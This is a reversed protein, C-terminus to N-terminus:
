NTGACIACADRDGHSPGVGPPDFLIVLLVAGTRLWRVRRATQREEGPEEAPAGGARHISFKLFFVFVKSLFCFERVGKFCIASPEAPSKSNMVPEDTIVRRADDTKNSNGDDESGHNKCVGIDDIFGVFLKTATLARVCGGRQCGGRASLGRACVRLVRRVARESGACIGLAEDLSVASFSGACPVPCLVPGNGNAVSENKEPEVKVVM